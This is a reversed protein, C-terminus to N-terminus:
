QSNGCQEKGILKYISNQTECMGEADISIVRSTSIWNIFTPHGIPKGKIYFHGTDGYLVKHWNHIEGKYPKM